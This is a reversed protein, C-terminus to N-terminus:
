NDKGALNILDKDVIFSSPKKFQVKNRPSKKIIHLFLARSIERAGMTRLHDTMFQVDVLSFKNCSLIAMLAILAIKSGNSSKSFM